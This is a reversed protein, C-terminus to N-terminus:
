DSLPAHTRELKPFVEDLSTKIYAVYNDGAGYYIWLDGNKFLIDGTAFVTDKKGKEYDKEPSLLPTTITRGLVISPDHLDLLVAGMSYVFKGNPKYAGHYILLWGEPTKIPPCGAGVHSGQWTGPIPGMVKKIGHWFILNKSYAICIDPFIRHLIVWDGGIKEPFLVINKNDGEYFNEPKGIDYFFRTITQSRFHPFTTPTAMAIAMRAQYGQQGDTGIIPKARTFTIVIRESGDFNIPTARPDEGVLIPSSRHYVHRHHCDFRDFGIGDKKRPDNRMIRPFLNIFEGDFFVAANCQGPGLIPIHREM